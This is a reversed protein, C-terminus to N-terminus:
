QLMNVGYSMKSLNFYYALTQGIDSFTKRHGLYKVPMGLQYILIPVNERTHDTGKWTPDCGHDATLILLDEKKILKLIDFLYQDFLELGKAYGFVDRRHGWYSDFDIFNTFVITNDKALTIQKKTELFLNELGMSKISKTIGTGAYIDSIKGIGIVEGQKENILKELVTISEPSNSFDRRNHTRIFKSTKFGLFPRSIVRGIKYISDNLINRIIYSINNLKQLGFIEEHCAVQFVSDKSTYFIPQGTKIHQEGYKDLIETGSSHCNGLSGNIKCNIYIDSLLKEPFSNVRNNFYDWNFLVPAGVIEWHGSITDKGSSIESAYAYSGIINVNNVSYSLLLKELSSDILKGLGLSLLNPIKLINLPYTINKNNYYSTIIHGFTNAGSDGYKDADRSYGIGFSDLVLIFARKM